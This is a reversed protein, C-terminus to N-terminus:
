RSKVIRRYEDRILAYSILNELLHIVEPDDMNWDRNYTLSGLYFQKEKIIQPYKESVLERLESIKGSGKNGIGIKGHHYFKFVSGSYTVNDDFVLQLSHHTEKENDIAVNLATKVIDPHSYNGYTSVGFSIFETSGQVDILLSRYPGSFVGGSANGYSLIRVGYDKIVRFLQFSRSPFCHDVSLLGEWLNEGACAIAHDTQISIDESYEDLNEKLYSSIQDYHLRPPVKEPVYVSFHNQLLDEYTPISKLQVYEDREPDYHFCFAEYGNTMLAYDCGLADCYDALQNGASEDLAVGPAKCEVVAIPVLLKEQNLAHVILDARRKSAIGYHSLHEEVGIMKQPVHLVSILFSIVQQRM